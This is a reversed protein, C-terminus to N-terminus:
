VSLWSSTFGNSVYEYLSNTTLNWWKDMINPNPPQNYSVFYRIGSNIYIAGDGTLPNGNNIINPLTQTLSNGPINIGLSDDRVSNDGFTMKIMLTYSVGPVGMSVIFSAIIGDIGPSGILLPPASGIDITFTISALIGHDDIVNTYDISILTQSNANKSFAGLKNTSNAYFYGLSDFQSAPLPYTM